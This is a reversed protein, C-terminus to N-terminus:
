KNLISKYTSKFLQQLPKYFGPKYNEIYFEVFYGNGESHFANLIHIKTPFGLPRDKIMDCVLNMERRKICNFVVHIGIMTTDKSHYSESEDSDYIVNLDHSSVVFDVIPESPSYLKRLANVRSTDYNSITEFYQCGTYKQFLSIHFPLQGTKEILYHNLMDHISDISTFLERVRSQFVPPTAAKIFEIAESISLKMEIEGSRNIESLLWPDKRRLFREEFLLRYIFDIPEYDMIHVEFMNSEFLENNTLGKKLTFEVMDDIVVPKIIQIVQM